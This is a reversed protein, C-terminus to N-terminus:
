FTFYAPCHLPYERGFTYGAIMTVLHRQAVEPKWCTQHQRKLLRARKNAAATPTLPQARCLRGGYSALCGVRVSARSGQARLQRARGLRHGRLFLRLALRGLCDLPRAPLGVHGRQALQAHGQALHPGGKAHPAFAIGTLSSRQM